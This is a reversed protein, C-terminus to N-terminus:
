IPNMEEDGKKWMGRSDGVWKYAYKYIIRM